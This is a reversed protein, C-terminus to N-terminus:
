RFGGVFAIGRFEALSIKGEIIDKMKVDWPEFGAAYFAGAM